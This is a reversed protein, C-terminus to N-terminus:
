RFLGGLAKMGLGAIEDVVSGDGDKDLMKEILSQQPMRQQVQQNSTKLFDLLNSPQMQQQQRQKGLMGLAVPALKMLLNMSNNRSLGSGKSIMNIVNFINSGGLLHSLIGMGDAAKGSANGNLLDGINDLIGGNHTKELAGFLGQLGEPNAANKNLAGLITSLALNSASQTQEKSAGGMQNTLQDLLGNQLQGQLLDMFNAM